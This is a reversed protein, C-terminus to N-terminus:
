LFSYVPWPGSLKGELAFKQYRKLLRNLARSFKNFDAKDVLFVSNLIMEKDKGSLSSPLNKNLCSNKSVQKLSKFIETASKNIMKTTKGELKDKYKKELLYARGPPANSIEKRLRKMERDKEGLVQTLKKRESYVKVGWEEKDRFKNLLFLFKAQNGRLMKKVGQDNKFITGFKFPLVTQKEMVKQTVKAHNRIKEEAWKPKKLNKLLAKRNFQARKVQSVIAVLDQYAIQYVKKNDIGRLRLRPIPNKILCYTYVLFDRM